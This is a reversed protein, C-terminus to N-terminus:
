RPFLRLIREQLPQLAKSCAVSGLLALPVIIMIKLLAPMISGDFAIQMWVVFVPHFLFIGLGIPALQDLWPVRRERVRQMLLLYTLVQLPLFIAHLSTRIWVGPGYLWLLAGAESWVGGRSMYLYVEDSYAGADFWLLAYGIYAVGSIALATVLRPLHLMLNAYIGYQRDRDVLGWFAGMWFFLGQVMFRSGQVHFLKGWGIWWPAGWRIDSFGLLLACILMVSGLAVFPKYQLLGVIREKISEFRSRGLGQFVLAVCVSHLFIVYLVWMPGAQLSKGGWFADIYFDVFNFLGDGHHIYKGYSMFPVLAVLGFIAPVILQLFRRMIYKVLGHRMLSAFVTQGSIFFLMPIIISNNHLYFVDWFVERESDHVFWFKGWNYAYGHLTHDVLMLLLFVIRLRDLTVDRPMAM